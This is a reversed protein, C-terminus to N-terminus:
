LCMCVYACVGTEVESCLPRKSRAIRCGYRTVNPSPALTAASLNEAALLRELFPLYTGEAATSVSTTSQALKCHAYLGTIIQVTFQYVDEACRQALRDPPLHAVRWLGFQLLQEICVSRDADTWASHELQGCARCGAPASGVSERPGAQSDATLFIARHDCECCALTIVDGHRLTQSPRSITVLENNLWIGAPSLCKLNWHKSSAPTATSSLKVKFHRGSRFQTWVDLSFLNCVEMYLDLHLLSREYMNACTSLPFFAKLSSCPGVARGCIVGPPGFSISTEDTLLKIQAYAQM